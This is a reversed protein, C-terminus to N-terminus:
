GSGEEDFGAIRGVWLFVGDDVRGFLGRNTRRFLLSGRSVVGLLQSGLKSGGLGKEVVVAALSKIVM